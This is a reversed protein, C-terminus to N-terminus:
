YQKFKKSIELKSTNGKIGFVLTYVGTTTAITTIPEARTGEVSKEEEDEGKM